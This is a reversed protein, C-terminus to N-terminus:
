ARATGAEAFAMTRQLAATRMDAPIVVPGGIAQANIAAQAAEEVVGGIVIALDPTRHFVLVGHNALLV